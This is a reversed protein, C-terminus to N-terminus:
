VGVAARVRMIEHRRGSREAALTEFFGGDLLGHRRLAELVEFSVTRLSGGWAVSSGLEPYNQTVLRRLEDASFLDILLAYLERMAHAPDLPEMEAQPRRAVPLDTGASPPPGARQALNLAERLVEAPKAYPGALMAATRLWVQLPEDNGQAALDNLTSLEAILGAAGTSAQHPLVGRVDESLLSRLVARQDLLNSGQAAECVRLLWSVPLDPM